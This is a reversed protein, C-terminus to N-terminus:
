QRQPATEPPADAVPILNDLNRMHLYAALAKPLDIGRESAIPVAFERRNQYLRQRHTGGKFPVGDM